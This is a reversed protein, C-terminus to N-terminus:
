RTIKSLNVAMFLLYITYTILYAYNAGHVGYKLILCWSALIFLSSFIIETSILWRAKGQSLMPFALVWSSIKIVDGILQVLFLDRAPFFDDTFILKIATDRFIYVFFAMVSALPLVLFFTKVVESKVENGSKLSSLRPLFYTSLAISLIALYAESIKWVAQWQGAINWGTENVLIKRIIILATPSCLAVVIAMLIYSLIDKIKKSDIRTNIRLYKVWEQNLSTIVMIIGIAGGQLAVAILAGELKALKIALLMIATSFIVSAIGLFIFRKYNQQGNIISGIMTGITTLPLMLSFIVIYRKYDSTAFLWESINQSMFVLLPVAISCILLALQISAKWWPKCTQYGQDHYKATYKVLGNGVPASVVSNIVNNFSQLQGLIAIGSPGTYIAVAKAVIFGALMKSLALLGTFITVTFFKKM